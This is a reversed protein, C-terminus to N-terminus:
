IEKKCINVGFNYIIQILYIVLAIHALIRFFVIWAGFSAFVSLLYLPIFVMTSKGLFSVRPNGFKHLNYTGQACIALDKVVMLFFLSKHINLPLLFFCTYIFIKDCVPDFISGFKSQVGWLRALYGDLFDTLLGIIFFLLTYNTNLNYFYSVGLAMILRSFTLLQVIFWLM